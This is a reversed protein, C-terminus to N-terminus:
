VSLCVSLCASLCVSLCVSTLCVPLCAPLCVSTLCVSLCFDSLCFDSLCVPLCASLCVSLCVSTLCVPPLWVRMAQPRIARVAETDAADRSHSPYVIVRISCSEFPAHSPHLDLAGQPLRTYRPPTHCPPLPAPHPAASRARGRPIWGRALGHGPGPRLRAPGVAGRALWPPLCLLMAYACVPASPPPTRTPGPPTRHPATHHPTTRPPTPRPDPLLPHPVSRAPGPRPAPRPASRDGEDGALWMFIATVSVILSRM